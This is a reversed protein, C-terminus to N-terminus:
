NVIWQNRSTHQITLLFFVRFFIWSSLFLINFTNMSSSSFFINVTYPSLSLTSFNRMAYNNFFFFFFLFFISFVFLIYRPISLHAPPSCTAGLATTEIASCEQVERRQALSSVFWSERRLRDESTGSRGNIEVLFHSVYKDSVWLIKRAVPYANNNCDRLLYRDAM